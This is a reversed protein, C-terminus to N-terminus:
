NLLYFSIWLVLSLCNLIYIAKLSYGMNRESFALYSKFLNNMSLVILIQITAVDSMIKHSHEMSLISATAAHVDIVGSIAMTFGASYSGLYKYSLAGLFTIMTVTTSFKFADLLDFVPPRPTNDNINQIKGNSRIVLILCIGLFVFGILFPIYIADLHDFGFISVVLIISILSSVSSLCLGVLGMNSSTLNNSVQKGLSYVTATSSLFGSAFTSAILGYKKGFFRILIYSAASISIMVLMLTVIKKPNFANFPGLYVDPIFPYIVLVITLFLLLHDIETNTITHKVFYHIREKIRLLLALAVGVGAAIPMNVITMGGLFCTLVLSIETTLGPDKNHSRLYGVVCFLSIVLISAVLLIYSGLIMSVCGLLSSITFTRIGAFRRNTDEGKQREREIGVLLGIGLALLVSFLTNM